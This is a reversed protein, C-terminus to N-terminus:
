STPQQRISLNFDVANDYGELEGRHVRVIYTGPPLETVVSDESENIGTVVEGQRLVSFTPELEDSGQSRLEIQYRGPHAVVLEYDLFSPESPVYPEGPPFTGQIQDGAHMTAQISSAVPATLSSYLFYGGGIVLIAVAVVASITFLRRRQSSHTSEMEAKTQNRLKETTM